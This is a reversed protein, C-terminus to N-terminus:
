GLRLVLAVSGDRLLRSSHGDGTTDEFLVLEGATFSRTVGDDVTVKWEGALIAWLLRAPAPHPESGAWWSDGAVLM